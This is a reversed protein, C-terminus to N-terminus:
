KDVPLGLINYKVGGRVIIVEGNDVYKYTHRNDGNDIETSDVGGNNGTYVIESRTEKDGHKQIVQVGVKKWDHYFYVTHNVGSVKFDFDEYYAYPVDTMAEVTMDTYDDPSFVFPTSSDDPFMNYYLEEPNIYVGDKDMSPIAFGIVGFGWIDDMPEFKTFKVSAPTASKPQYAKICPDAFVGTLLLTDPSHSFCMAQGKQSTLSGDSYNLVIKDIPTYKRWWDGFGTEPDLLELYKDYEAPAFWVAYGTEADIGLYQKLFTVTGNGRDINGKIWQDTKASPNSIYIEDGVEAYQLLTANDLEIDRVHLLTYSLSKKHTETGEPLSTPKKESQYIQFCGDGFGIWNGASSTFGILEEPFTEENMETINMNKQALKGDKLTFFIDTDYTGDPNQQVEYGFSTASKQSFVVKTAYATFPSGDDLEDVWILQPTHAVYTTEDVKELKLYSDTKQSIKSAGYCVARLYVNGDTGIVYQGSVGEEFRRIHCGAEYYSTYCDRIGTVVEGEPAKDILENSYIPLAKMRTSANPVPSPEKAAGWAMSVAFLLLVTTFFNKM